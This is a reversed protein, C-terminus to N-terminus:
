RGHGVRSPMHLAHWLINSFANRAWLWIRRGAMALAVRCTCPMGFFTQSHTEPGSGYAAALWPWRSEAHALCALSHKLIRKPGLAMHPPWGHGVRSPMHLAHWLINSFANRAWLWIRRGAM